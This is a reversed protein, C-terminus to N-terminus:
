PICFGLDSAVADGPFVRSAASGNQAEMNAGKEVLLRAAEIHGNRCAVLLATDGNRATLNGGRSFLGARGLLSCACWDEVVGIGIGNWDVYILWFYLRVGGWVDVVLVLGFCFLVLRRFLLFGGVM